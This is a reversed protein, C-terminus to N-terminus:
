EGGGIRSLEKSIRDKIHDFVVKYAKCLWDKNRFDGTYVYASHMCGANCLKIYECEKCDEIEEAKREHLLMKIPSNMLEIMHQYNINGMRFERNGSFRPCPYVDGNSEISVYVDQCTKSHTCVGVDESRLLADMHRDITSITIDNRTEPFYVDFTRCVFEAFEEPFVGLESYTDKARGSRSLFSIQYNIGQQKFWYYLEEPKDVSLNTIVSIVGVDKGRQRRKEIFRIVDDFSGKGNKYIRNADHIERWGDLSTGPRMDLEDFLELFEDDVLTGNTQIPNEFIAGTEDSVEKEIGAALRFFGHGALLPEGGHWLIEINEAVEGSKRIANRLTHEEMVTGSNSGEYCYKCNLNCGAAPKLILKLKKM